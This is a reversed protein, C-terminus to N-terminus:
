SNTEMQSQCIVEDERTAWLTLSDVQLKLSGPKVGPEPLDGPSPFPLGTWYEQRPFEMSLPAQLAVTWSTVLTPCLQLSQVVVDSYTLHEATTIEKGGKEKKGQSHRTNAAAHPIKTMANLRRELQPLSVGSCVPEITTTGLSLQRQSMHVRLEGDLSWVWIGQM